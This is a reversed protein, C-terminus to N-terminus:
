FAKKFSPFYVKSPDLITVKGGEDVVLVVKQCQSSLFIEGTM